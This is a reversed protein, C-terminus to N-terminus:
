EALGGIVSIILTVMATVVYGFFFQCIELIFSCKVSSMTRRQPEIMQFLILFPASQSKVYCCGSIWFLVHCNNIVRIIVSWIPSRETRNGNNIMVM